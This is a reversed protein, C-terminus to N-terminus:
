SIDGNPHASNCIGLLARPSYSGCQVHCCSLVQSDGPCRLSFVSGEVISGSNRIRPLRISSAQLQSWFHENEVLVGSYKQHAHEDPWVTPFLPKIALHGLQPPLGMPHTNLSGWNSAIHSLSKVNRSVPSLRRVQLTLSM